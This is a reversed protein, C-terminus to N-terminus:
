KQPKLFDVTYRSMFEYGKRLATEDVDFKSNHQTWIIGKEENM